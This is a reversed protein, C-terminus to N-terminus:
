FKFNFRLHYNREAGATYRLGGRNISAIYVADLLNNINLQVGTNPTAQYSSMSDLVWYDPIVAPRVTNGNKSKKNRSQLTCWKWHEM